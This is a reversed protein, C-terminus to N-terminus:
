EIVLEITGLPDSLEPGASGLGSRHAPRLSGGSAAMGTSYWVSVRDFIARHLHEPQERAALPRTGTGRSMPRVTRCRSLSESIM